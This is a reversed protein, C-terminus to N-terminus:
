SASVDPQVGLEYLAPEIRRSQARSTILSTEFRHASTSQALQDVFAIDAGRMDDFDRLAVPASGADGAGPAVEVLIQLPSDLGDLLRRFTSIWRARDDEAAGEFGLSATKIVAIESATSFLTAPGRPIVRM